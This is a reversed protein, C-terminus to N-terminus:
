SASAIQAERQMMLRKSGAFRAVAFDGQNSRIRVGDPLHVESAMIKDGINKGRLDLVLADPVKDGVCYVPLRHVLELMWGGARYAMCREDNITRFPISMKTGPRRGPVHRLFTVNRIQRTVPDVDLSRPVVLESATDNLPMDVLTNAFSMPSRNHERVLDVTRVWVAIPEATGDAAVGYITGPTLGAARARRAATSGIDFSSRRIAPLQLVNFKQGFLTRRGEAAACARETVSAAATEARLAGGARSLVAGRWRPPQVAAIHM